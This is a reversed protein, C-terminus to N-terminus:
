AGCVRPMPTPEKKIEAQLLEMILKAKLEAAKPDDWLNYLEEPDNQLDFIEGYERGRYTTVKHTQNIYTKAYITTPQHRNEVIAHHRPADAKGTWAQSQDLGTM